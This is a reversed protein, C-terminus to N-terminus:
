ALPPLMHVEGLGDVFVIEGAPGFAAASAVAERMAAPTVLRGADLDYVAGIGHESSSLLFRGDPSRQFCRVFSGNAAHLVETRGSALDLRRVDGNATAIFAEDAADGLRLGTVLRTDLTVRREEVVAAGDDSLRLRLLVDSDGAATIEGGDASLAAWNHFGLELTQRGLLRRGTAIDWLSILAGGSALLRGGADSVSFVYGGHPLTHILEGDSRWLRVNADFGGTAVRDGGIATTVFVFAGREPGLERRDGDEERLVRGDPLGLFATFGRGGPCALVAASLTAPPHTEFRSLVTEGCMVIVGDGVGLAVLEGHTAIARATADSVPSSECAAADFRCRLVLGGAGVWAESAALGLGWIPREWETAHRWREAGSAPKWLRLTGDESASLVGEPGARVRTVWRTHGLGQAAERGDELRWIRVADDRGGSALADSDIFDLDTVAARHGAIARLPAHDAARWLRIAGDFGGTALREWDPSLALAMAPGAHADAAAVRRGDLTHVLVRGDHGASILRERRADWVMSWVPGAHAPITREARAARWDWVMIAGEVSGTALVGEGAFACATIIGQHLPATTDM